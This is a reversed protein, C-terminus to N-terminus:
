YKIKRRRILTIIYNYTNISKEPSRHPGHAEQQSLSSPPSSLTSHSSATQPDAIHGVTQVNTCTNQTAMKKLLQVSSPSLETDNSGQSCKCKSLETTNLM